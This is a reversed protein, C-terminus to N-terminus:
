VCVCVVGEVLEDKSKRLQGIIKFDIEYLNIKVVKFLVFDEFIKINKVVEFVVEFVVKDVVEKDVCKVVVEKKKCQQDVYSVVKKMVVKVVLKYEEDDKKKVKYENDVGYEFYVQFFFKFFVIEFGQSDFVDVGKEEDIYIVVM